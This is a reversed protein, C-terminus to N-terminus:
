LLALARAPNALIGAVDTLFRAAQEGDVLRHDFAVSL